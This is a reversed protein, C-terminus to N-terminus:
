PLGWLPQAIHDDRVERSGCKPCAAPSPWPSGRWGCDRCFMVYSGGGEQHVWGRRRDMEIREQCIACIM